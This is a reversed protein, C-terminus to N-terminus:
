LMSSNVLRRLSRIFTEESFRAAAAAVDQRVLPERQLREMAAVIAESTLDEIWYGTTGPQLTDRYGGADLLLSPTGFACAEMPTLGFDEDSVGLLARANAYLWRLQVDPVEGLATVNTAATSAEHGGVVVLHADPVKQMAEVLVDVRKYSRPRAVALYFGPELGPVPERVDDPTLRVPPHLVDAPRGYAASVRNAVVTGNAVYKTASAAAQRDWSELRHLLPGLAKRAWSKRPGFYAQPQYLWRATNHCYVIKPVTAAIGHSWGSSSCLVVDVDDPISLTGFAWPLLPLAKRPDDRFLPVSQLPSTVIRRSKFDAFTTEACYVSTYITADPFARLMSLVVREAGGRQTLYDHVIAM